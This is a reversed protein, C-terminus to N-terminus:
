RTGTGHLDCSLAMLLFAYDFATERMRDYRGSPGFHGTGMNTKLMLVNSDLKCTRLRAVWKAPEWYSVRPDNLGATVLTKPYRKAEVNDYPSYSHIYGYFEKEAPNGWEEYESITLPLTPDLMTNVVDVFPVKAIVAHFLEPRMNMVAGMLLGGASGGMIALRGASTYGQATLHEVCAIFDTFTNKKRLLKGDDHWTKGLEGGGRIHAIGYIFGRDLLSLRDSSFGPDMVAGYSGYGYLLMPSAGDRPATKRYVISIPVQVGGPAAAFIRESTYQSSDYGGLVETQKKLERERTNMDYDFVSAPVVLSTYTFRLTNTRYEPNGTTFVSYAPDPFDVYHYENTNEARAIRLVPLGRDREHIVLYEEFAEVSDIMVGTRAPIVEEWMGFSPASVSTRMLRFNPARDNTRIYFFDSQHVADYEIEHRRPLMVRFATDALDAPAYRVETTVASHVDIFIYRDSRTKGLTLSFRADPEEYVLRDEAAGLVHQFVRYPRRAADLVTYFFARNDNTWELSYYTNPIVDRLLAGTSLDKVHITYAEDGAVDISYALLNHDTSIAFNGLRFYPQGAALINGDLLIEEEAELSGKKRCHVAYAKGEETRTYYFFNDKRVPVSLDTQKVRGLIEAYLQERLAATPAMVAETYRNEAELYAITDGDSRDRLWAYEDIRTDGHLVMERPVRKAVPPNM